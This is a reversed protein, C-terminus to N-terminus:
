LLLNLKTRIDILKTQSTEIVNVLQKELSELREKSILTVITVTEEVEVDSIKKITTTM